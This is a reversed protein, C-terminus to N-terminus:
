KNWIRIVEGDRLGSRDICEKSSIFSIVLCLCVLTRAVSRLLTQGIVHMADKGTSTFSIWRLMYM